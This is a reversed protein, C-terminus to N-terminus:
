HSAADFRRRVMRAKTDIPSGVEFTCNSVTVNEIALPGEYFAPLAQIEMESIGNGRWVSREFRSHSSKWRAFMANSDDFISDRVTAGACQTKAIQVVYSVAEM